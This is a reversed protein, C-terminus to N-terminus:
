SAILQIRELVKHLRNAQMGLLENPSDLQHQL